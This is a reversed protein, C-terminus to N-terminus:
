ILTKYNVFTDRTYIGASGGGLIVIRVDSSPTPNDEPLRYVKTMATYSCFELKLGDQRYRQSLLVPALLSHDIRRAIM